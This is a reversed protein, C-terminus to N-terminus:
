VLTSLTLNYVRGVMVVIQIDSYLIHSLISFKNKFMKDDGSPQLAEGLEIREFDMSAMIVIKSMYDSKQYSKKLDTFTKMDPILHKKNDIIYYIKRNKIGNEKVFTANRLFQRGSTLNYFFYGSKLMTDKKLNKKHWIFEGANLSYHTHHQFPVGIEPLLCLHSFKRRFQPYSWSTM